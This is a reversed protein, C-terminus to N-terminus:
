RDHLWNSLPQWLADRAGSGVIMGVHGSDVDRREVGPARIRAERPVIRDKTAGFDLIPASIAEPRIPQGRVRWLGRGIRDNGFGSLFLDRAAPLPIPAGSSAWDEVAAFWAIGPDGPPRRALAEFKAVVAEEDLAWFLPNLLTVPVAGLRQGIPRATRWNELAARRAEPSFGAFHWPAAILALKELRAGLLQGAALALTGGLCYGALHIKPGLKEILPLLRTSVLGALGLRRESPGMQGWDLLFVNHGSEALYRVLSRGPALDLVIPANILSPILVLPPRDAPGGVRLLRVGGRRAAPQLPPQAPLAPAQQYRQLGELAAQLRDPEAGLRRSLLTLFLPLPHPGRERSKKAKGMDAM